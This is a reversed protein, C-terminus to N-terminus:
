NESTLESDFETAASKIKEEKRTTFSCYYNSKCVLLGVKSDSQRGNSDPSTSGKVQGFVNDENALDEFRRLRDIANGRCLERHRYLARGREIIVAMSAPTAAIEVSALEYSSEWVEIEIQRAKKEKM